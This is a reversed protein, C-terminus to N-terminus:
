WGEHSVEVRLGLHAELERWVTVVADSVPSSGQGGFASQVRLTYVHQGTSELEFALAYCEPYVTARIESWREEFLPLDKSAVFRARPTGLAVSGALRLEAAELALLLAIWRLSPRRDVVERTIRAAVDLRGQRQSILAARLLGRSPEELTSAIVEVEDRRNM